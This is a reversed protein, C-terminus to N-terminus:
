VTHAESFVSLHSLLLAGHKPLQEPSQLGAEDFEKMDDFIAYLGGDSAVYVLVNGLLLILGRVELERISDRLKTPRKNQLLWTMGRKEAYSRKSENYPSDTVEKKEHYRFFIDKCM